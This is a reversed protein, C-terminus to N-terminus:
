HKRLSLWRYVTDINSWLEVNLDTVFCYGKVWGSNGLEVDKRVDRYAWVPPVVNGPNAIRVYDLAYGRLKEDFKTFITDAAARIEVRNPGTGKMLSSYGGHFSFVNLADHKQGDATLIYRGFLPASAGNAFILKNAAISQRIGHDFPPHTLLRDAHLAIFSHPFYVAEAEMPFPDNWPDYNLPVCGLFRFLESSNGSELSFLKEGVIAVKIKRSPFSMEQPPTWEQNLIAMAELIRWEIQGATSALQIAASKIQLVRGPTGANYLDQLVPLQREMEKPIYGLSLVPTRRGYEQELLQYERANRLSAFVVGLARNGDADDLGSLVTSAINGSTVASTAASIVPVVGCSLAKALELADPRIQIFEEEPREGLPVLVINVAEPDAVRQFLTKMNRISGCTFADLNIVPEELLLRLLRMDAESRACTFVKLRIGARKMAYVLILGAAVTGTKIEDAVILRPLNM